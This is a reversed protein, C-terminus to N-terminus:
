RVPPEAGQPPPLSPSELDSKKLRFLARDDHTFGKTWVIAGFTLLICPIGFALEMWEFRKPLMTFAFGVLSAGTAAWILPWRWGQVPAELIRCLLRAKLISAMALAVALAVAPGAAQYAPPWGAERMAVILAISLSAQVAVMVTSIILNRHRAVYVLAAESVAATAAIVEAALLFALAGTGGVFGPGVLGMVAEGPIGL